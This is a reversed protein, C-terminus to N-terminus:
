KLNYLSYKVEFIKNQISEKYTISERENAELANTLQEFKILLSNIDTGSIYKSIKSNSLNFLINSIKRKSNLYIERKDELYNFTEILYFLADLQSNLLEKIKSENSFNKQFIISIWFFLIINLFSFFLDIQEFCTM